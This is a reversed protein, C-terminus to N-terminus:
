PERYACEASNVASGGGWCCVCHKRFLGVGVWVGVGNRWRENM